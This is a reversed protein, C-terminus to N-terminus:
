SVLSSTSYRQAFRCYGHQKRPMERDSNHNLVFALVPSRVFGGEDRIDSSPISLSFKQQEVKICVIPFFTFHGAYAIVADTITLFATNFSQDLTAEVQRGSTPEVGAAVQASDATTNLDPEGSLM